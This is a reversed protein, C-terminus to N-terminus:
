LGIINGTAVIVAIGVLVVVLTFIISKEISRYTVCMLRDIYSLLGRGIYSLLSRRRPDIYSLLGREIYSLLGRHDRDSRPPKQGLSAHRLGACVRRSGEHHLLPSQDRRYRREDYLSGVRDEEGRSVREVWFIEGPQRTAMMLDLRENVLEASRPEGRAYKAGFSVRGFLQFTEERVVSGASHTDGLLSNQPSRAAQDADQHGSEKNSSWM